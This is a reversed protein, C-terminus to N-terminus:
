DIIEVFSESITIKDGINYDYDDKIGYVIYLGDEFYGGAEYWGVVGVQDVKM